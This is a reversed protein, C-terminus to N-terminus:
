LCRAAILRAFFDNAITRDQRGGKVIDTSQVYVPVDSVNEITLENVSGTENVIVKKQEIAEELTLLGSVDIRDKGHILFVTLNDHRTLAPFRSRSGPGRHGAGRRDGPAHGSLVPVDGIGSM